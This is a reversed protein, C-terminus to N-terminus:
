AHSDGGEALIEMGFKISEKALQKLYQQLQFLDDMQDIKALVMDSGGSTYEAEAFQKIKAKVTPDDRWNYTDVSLHEELLTRVKDIDKLMLSYEGLLDRCFALDHQEPSAVMDFLETTQLWSLAAKIESDTGYNRNLTEFAKKAKEYEHAPVCSLIPTRYQKSWELPNKTSTKERWLTFLQTKIQKKRFEEAAEKVKKNCMTSELDFLGTSVQGKIEAIDRESVGELHVKYVSAFIENINGLTSRMEVSQRELELLFQSLQEPLIDQQISVKRLWAWLNGFNSFRASLAEHSVGVFRLTERWFKYAEDLSHADCDLVNPLPIKPFVPL